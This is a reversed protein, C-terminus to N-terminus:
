KHFSGRGHDWSKSRSIKEVSKERRISIQQQNGNLDFENEIENRIYSNYTEEEFTGSNITSRQNRLQQQELENRMYTNYKEEELMENNNSTNSFRQQKKQKKFKSRNHMSDSLIKLSSSSENRTLNANSEAPLDIVVFNSFQDQEQERLENIRQSLNCLILIISYLNM